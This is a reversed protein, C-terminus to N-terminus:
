FNRACWRQGPQPVTGPRNEGPVRLAVPSQPFGCYL